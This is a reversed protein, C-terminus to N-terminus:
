IPEGAMAIAQQVVKDSARFGLDRELKRVLTRLEAAQGQLNLRALIRLTGIPKAGMAEAIDRARKDDGIFYQPQREQGQILGEAEGEGLEAQLIRVNTEDVAICRVFLGTEYLKKLRYRFRGKKNVERQVARPVYVIDFFLSLERGLGLHTLHILPSSDVIATRM